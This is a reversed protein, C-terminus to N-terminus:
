EDRRRASAVKAHADALAAVEDAFRQQVLRVAAFGRMVRSYTEVTLGVEAMWAFTAEATELGFRERFANSSADVDAGGVVIGQRDAERIALWSLLAKKGAVAPNEGQRALVEIDSPADGMSSAARHSPGAEEPAGPEDQDLAPGDPGYRRLYYTVPDALEDEPSRELPLVWRGNEVGIVKEYTRVDGTLFLLLGPERGALVDALTRGSVHTFSNARSSRGEGTVFSSGSYDFYRELRRGEGTEVILQWVVRDRRWAHWPSSPTEFARRQWPAVRISILTDLAVALASRVADNPLGALTTTDIPEWLVPVTRPSSVFRSAQREVLPPKGEGITVVDGPALTAARGKGLRREVLATVEDASLPFAVRNFWAHRGGFKLGSAYPFVLEPEVSCAAELWGTVERKDFRAGRSRQYGMSARVVPQYKASVLAIAGHERRVRAAVAPTVEADAMHWLAANGEAVLLGFEPEDHDSPTPVLKTKGLNVAEFPMVAVVKSFGLRALGDLLHPDHPAIVVVDRSLRELSPVHFHDFHGHTVVLATPVPLRDLALEREPEFTLAGGVLDPSLVPDVFIRQDASEIYLGAHGLITVRM